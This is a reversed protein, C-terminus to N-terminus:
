GEKKEALHELSDKQTNKRKSLKGHDINKSAKDEKIKEKLSTSKRVENRRKKKKLWKM